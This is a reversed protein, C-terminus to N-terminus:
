INKFVHEIFWDSIHRSLGTPDVKYDKLYRDPIRKFRYLDEVPIVYLSEPSDPSGGVGLAILVKTKTAGQHRYYREIQYQELSFGASPISSRYKCELWYEMKGKRIKFDPKKSDEAYVGGATTIGQNWEILRAGQGDMLEAIYEEFSNGKQKQADPTMKKAPGPKENQGDQKRIPAEPKEKDTVASGVVIVKPEPLPSTYDIVEPKATLRLIGAAILIAGVVILAIGM